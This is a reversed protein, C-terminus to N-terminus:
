RGILREAFQEMAAIDELAAVDEFRGIEAVIRDVGAEEYRRVEDLPLRPDARITIEFPRGARDSEARLRHLEAVVESAREPSPRHGYWGDCLTASRRLAAPSEGGGVIPPHPRQTPKPEFRADEVQYHRGRFSPKEETWLARILRIAEDTRAGRTTFESGVLAFEERLWGSAVGLVVRGGSLVDLTQVARAVAVPERMPLVLIGTALRITRTAQAIWALVTLVDLVPADTPFPLGGDVNHPYPSTVRTPVILHDGRWVSDFGLTEAARAKALLAEPEVGYLRTGFLV